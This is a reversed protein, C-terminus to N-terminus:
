ANGKAIKDVIIDITDPAPLLRNEGVIVFKIHGKLDVPMLAEVLQSSSVVVLTIGKNIIQRIQMRAKPLESAMNGDLYLVLIKPVSPRGGKNTLLVESIVKDFVEKLNKGPTVLMNM